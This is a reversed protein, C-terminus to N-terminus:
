KKGYLRVPGVMGASVPKRGRTWRKATPNDQLTRCYNSLVVAVKIRLTNRGPKLAKGADFLHEGWWRVGLPKGNIWVESTGHVRGLNLLTRKPDKADFQTEYL